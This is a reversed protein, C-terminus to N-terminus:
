KKPRSIPYSIIDEFFSIDPTQLTMTADDYHPPIIPVGIIGGSASNAIGYYLLGFIAALAFSIALVIFTAYSASITSSTNYIVLFFREAALDGQLSERDM